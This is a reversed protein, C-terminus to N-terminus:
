LRRDGCVDPQLMGHYVLIDTNNNWIFCVCMKGRRDWLCSKSSVPTTVPHLLINGCLQTLRNRGRHKKQLGDCLWLLRCAHARLRSLAPVSVGSRHNEGRRGSRQLSARSVPPLLPLMSLPSLLEQFCVSQLRLEMNKHEVEVHGWYFCASLFHSRMVAAPPSLWTKIM